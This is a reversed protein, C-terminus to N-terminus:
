ILIHGIYTSHRHELTYQRGVGGYQSVTVLQLRVRSLEAGVWRGSMVGNAPSRIDAAEARESEM